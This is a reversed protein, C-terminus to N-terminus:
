FFRQQGALLVTRVDCGCALCPGGPLRPHPKLRVPEDEEILGARRRLHRAQAASTGFALPQAGLRREAM